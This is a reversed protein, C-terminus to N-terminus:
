AEDDLVRLLMARVDDPKARGGTRRMTDGILRGIAAGKGGKFDAVAAPNGAVAARAADLVEATDDM